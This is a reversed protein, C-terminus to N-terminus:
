DTIKALFFTHERIIVCLTDFCTPTVFSYLTKIPIILVSNLYYILKTCKNTHLLLHSLIPRKRASILNPRVWFNSAINYGARDRHPVYRPHQELLSPARVEREAPSNPLSCTSATIGVDLTSSNIRCLYHIISICILQTSNL